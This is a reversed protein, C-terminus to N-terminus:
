SKWTYVRPKVPVVCLKWHGEPLPKAIMKVTSNTTM